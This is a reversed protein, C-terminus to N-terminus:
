KLIIVLTHTYTSTTMGLLYNEMSVVSVIVAIIIEAVRAFVIVGGIGSPSFLAIFCLITRISAAAKDVMCCINLKRKGEKAEAFFREIEDDQIPSVFM